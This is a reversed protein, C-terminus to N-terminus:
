SGRGARRRRQYAPNQSLRRGSINRALGAGESWIILGLETDAVLAIEDQMATAWNSVLTVLSGAWIGDGQSAVTFPGLYTRGQVRKVNTLWLVLFSVGPPTLNGTATGATYASGWPIQGYPTDQSVNYVDLVNATLNNPLASAIEVYANSVRAAIEDLVGDDGNTGVDRVIFHFVNVVEDRSDLLQRAAVRLINNNAIPAMRGMRPLSQWLKYHPCTPCQLPLTKLMMGGTGDVAVIVISATPLAQM